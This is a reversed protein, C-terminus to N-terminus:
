GFKKLAIAKIQEPTMQQPTYMFETHSNIDLKCEGNVLYQPTYDSTHDISFGLEKAYSMIGTLFVNRHGRSDNVNDGEASWREKHTFLSIELKENFKANDETIIFEWLPYFIRQEVSLDRQVKFLHKYGINFKRLLDTKSMKGVGKLLDYHCVNFLDLDHYGVLYKSYEITDLYDRFSHARFIFSYYYGIYYMEINHPVKKITGNQGAFTVTAEDSNSIAMDFNSKVVQMILKASAKIHSNDLYNNRIASFLMGENLALLNEFENASKLCHAINHAMLYDVLEDIFKKRFPDHKFEHLQINM